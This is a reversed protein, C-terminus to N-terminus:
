DNENDTIDYRMLRNETVMLNQVYYLDPDLDLVKLPNRGNHSQPFETIKAPLEFNGAFNQFKRQPIHHRALLSM